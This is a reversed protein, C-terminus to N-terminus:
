KRGAGNAAPSSKATPRGKRLTSRGERFPARGPLLRGRKLNFYDLVDKGADFRAELNRATTKMSRKKMPEPVAPMLWFPDRPFGIGHKASNAGSAARTGV